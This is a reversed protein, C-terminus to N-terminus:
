LCMMQRMPAEHESGTTPVEDDETVSEEREETLEGEMVDVFNLTWVFDLFGDGLM